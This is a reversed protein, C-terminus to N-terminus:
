DPWIMDVAVAGEAVVVEPIVTLADKFQQGPVVQRRGHEMQDLLDELFAVDATDTYGEFVVEQVEDDLIPFTERDPAEGYPHPGVLYRPVVADKENDPRYAGRALVVFLGSVSENNLRVISGLGLLVGQLEFTM